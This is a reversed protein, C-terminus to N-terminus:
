GIIQCAPLLLVVLYAVPAKVAVNFFDSEIVQEYEFFVGLANRWGHLTNGLEGHIPIGSFTHSL